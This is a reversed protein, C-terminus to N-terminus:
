QPIQGTQVSNISEPDNTTGLDIIGNHKDIEDRTNGLRDTSFEFTSRNNDKGVVSTAIYSGIYNDEMEDAFNFDGPENYIRDSGRVQSTSSIPNIMYKISDSTRINTPQKNLDNPIYQEIVVTYGLPIIYRLYEELAKKNKIKVATFIQITYTENNMIVEPEEFTGELKLISSVAYKIGRISGKYKVAYPFSDLIVRLVNEPINLKTFFGMKTCLLNLMRDNIQLPDLINTITNIDFRVGNNITDYLRCFLQFDRSNNIYAEPTNNQLRFM